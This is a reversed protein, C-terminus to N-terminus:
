ICNETTLRKFILIFEWVFAFYLNIRDEGILSFSEQYYFCNVAHQIMEAHIVGLQAEEWYLGVEERKQSLFAPFIKRWLNRPNYDEERIM